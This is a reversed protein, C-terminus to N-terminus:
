DDDFYQVKALSEVFGVVFDKLTKVEGGFMAYQSYTPTIVRRKEDDPPTFKMLFLYPVAGILYASRSKSSKKKM